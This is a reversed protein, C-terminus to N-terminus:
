ANHFYIKNHVLAKIIQADEYELDEERMGRPFRYWDNRDPLKMYVRCSHGKKKNKGITKGSEKAQPGDSLFNWILNLTKPFWSIEYGYFLFLIKMTARERENRWLKRRCYELWLKRRCYELWGFLKIYKMWWVYTKCQINTIPYSHALTWREPPM